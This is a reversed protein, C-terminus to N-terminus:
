VAKLGADRRGLTPTRRNPVMALDQLMLDRLEICHAPQETPNLATLADIQCFTSALALVQQVGSTQVDSALFHLRLESLVSQPWRRHPTPSLAREIAERLVGRVSNPAGRVADRM